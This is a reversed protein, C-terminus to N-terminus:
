FKYFAGLGYIISDKAKIVVSKNLGTVGPKLKSTNEYVLSARFGMNSTLYYEAGGTLRMLYKSNNNSFSQSRRYPVGNLSNLVRDSKIKLRTVGIGGFLCLDKSIMEVPFFGQVSVYFGQTKTKSSFQYNAGVAEGGINIDGPNLTTDKKKKQSQQYGLEVGFNDHFRSGLFLSIQPLDKKFFKAAEAKYGMNRNQLDFGFYPNVNEVFAFVSATYLLLFLVLFKRM